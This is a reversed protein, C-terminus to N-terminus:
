QCVDGVCVGSACDWTTWCHQGSACKAPCSGGCDIDGEDSDWAGDGCSSVCCLSNPDCITGYGCEYAMCSFEGTCTTQCPGCDGPCTVCDEGGNCVGDGCVTPATGITYAGTAVASPSFGSAVAIASITTTVSVTIPGTYLTSDTTPTTGDTTYHLAADQTADSLAVLQPSSYTGPGPDFTPTATQLTYTGTAVASLSFGSAVAIASITTTVSVSIPGSYLTSATTPATGDTTYYIAAGQTADSLAVSQALSYTGPAPSFTPTAVQHRSRSATRGAHLPSLQIPDQGGCAALVALVAIWTMRKM